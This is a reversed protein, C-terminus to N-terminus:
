VEEVSSLAGARTEEHPLRVLFTSGAGKESILEIDGGQQRVIERATYLGIGTGTENQVDPDESRQFKEFVRAHEVPAIGIGNDKFTLVVEGGNFQCGVM